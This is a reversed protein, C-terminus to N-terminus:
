EKQLSTFADWLAHVPEGPSSVLRVEVIRQPVHERELTLIMPSPLYVGPGTYLRRTLQGNIFIEIFRVEQDPGREMKIENSSVHCSKELPDVPLDGPRFTVFDLYLFVRGNGPAYLSFSLGNPGIVAAEGDALDRLPCDKLARLGRQYAWTNLDKETLFGSPNRTHNFDIERPLSQHPSVPLGSIAFPIFAATLILGPLFRM